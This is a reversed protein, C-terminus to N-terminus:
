RKMPRRRTALIVSLGSNLVLGTRLLKSVDEIELPKHTSQCNILCERLGEKLNDSCEEM